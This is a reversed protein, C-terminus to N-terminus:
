CPTSVAVPESIVEKNDNFTIIVNACADGEHSKFSVTDETLVVNSLTYLTHELSGFCQVFKDNFIKWIM